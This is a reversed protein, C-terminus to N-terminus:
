FKSFQFTRPKEIELNRTEHNLPNSTKPTRLVKFDQFRFDEFLGRSGKVEFQFRFAEASHIIVFKFGQFRSIKIDKSGLFM